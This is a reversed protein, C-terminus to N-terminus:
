GYEYKQEVNNATNVAFLKQGEEIKSLDLQTSYSVEMSKIPTGDYNGKNVQIVFKKIKTTTDTPQIEYQMADDAYYQISINIKGNLDTFKSTSGDTLAFKMKNKLEADLESAYAYHVNELANENADRASITDVITFDKWVNAITQTIKWDAYRGARITDGAKQKDTHNIRHEITITKKDTYTKKTPTVIKAGNTM